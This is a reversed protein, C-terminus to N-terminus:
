RKDEVKYVKRERIQNSHSPSGNSHQLPPLPYGQKTGLYLLFAKLKEGSLILNAIAIDYIGKIINFEKRAIGM